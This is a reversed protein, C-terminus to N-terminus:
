ICNCWFVFAIVCCLSNARSQRLQSFCVIVVINVVFSCFGGEYSRILKILIPKNTNTTYNKVHNNGTTNYGQYWANSVSLSLWFQKVQKIALFLCPETAETLKQVLLIFIVLVLPTQICHLPLAHSM